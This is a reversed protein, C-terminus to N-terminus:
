IIRSHESKACMIAERSQSKEAVIRGVRVRSAVSRDADLDISDTSNGDVVVLDGAPGLRADRDVMHWVAFSRRRGYAYRIVEDVVVNLAVGAVAHDDSAASIGEDLTIDEVVIAM